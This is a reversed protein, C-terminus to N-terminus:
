APLGANDLRDRDPGGGKEDRGRPNREDEPLYWRVLPTNNALYLPHRPEGNKTVGLCYPSQGVLIVSAKKYYHDLRKGGQRNGWAVVLQTMISARGAALLHEENEPGFPDPHVLLANPNTARLAFVNRVSIGGCGERRAFGICRKITADDETEDATSPNMMIFAMVPRCDDWARWLHYRYVRDPSLIAGSTVQPDEM